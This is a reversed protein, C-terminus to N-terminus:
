EREQREREREQMGIMELALRYAYRIIFLKRRAQM